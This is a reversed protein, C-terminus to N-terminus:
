IRQPIGLEVRVEGNADEQYKDQLYDVVESIGKESGSQPGRADQGSQEERQM